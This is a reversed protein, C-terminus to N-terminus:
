AERRPKGLVDALSTTASGPRLPKPQDPHPAWATLTIIEFTAPVRGGPLGFREAYVDIARALTARRLPRRSREILPNSAGMARLERMLAIPNPYTVTVTDSDVVPLAFQARQLLGGLDRVDAFPAIRPSAGGVTEEEAILFATRLEALTAGGLLAALLLGDPRLARRIQILAGPLDNVLHLSLGSIVLDLSAEAFPLMEEDAQVKPGDCQALLRASAEVDTVREIGPVQRLRRGLLGHYAGLSAAEPFRRKVAGLRELLDDAVRALLFDHAAAGAAARDRRQVLLRRDFIERVSV